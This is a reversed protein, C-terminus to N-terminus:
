KRKKRSKRRKRSKKRRRKKKTKAEKRVKPSVIKRTPLAPTKLQIDFGSANHFDGRTAAIPIEIPSLDITELGARSPELIESITVDEIGKLAVGPVEGARSPELIESLLYKDNFGPDIPATIYLLGFVLWAVAVASINLGM